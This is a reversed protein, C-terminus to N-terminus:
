KDPTFTGDSALTGTEGSKLRVRKGTAAANGPTRAKAEGAVPTLASTLHQQTGKRAQEALHRLTKPNATREIGIGTGGIIQHELAQGADSAQIGKVGRGMAQVDAALSAREKGDDSLPNLIRGHREIHDAFKNVADVYMNTKAIGDAIKDVVRASPAIGIPAGTDPDRVTRADLKDAAADARTAKTADIQERQLGLHARAISQTAKANDRAVQHAEERDHIKGDYEAAKAMAENRLLSGQIAAADAGNQLLQAEAEKAILRYKAALDADLDNMAARHNDLADKFGYRAQLLADGARSLRAQRQKAESDMLRNITKVGENEAHGVQGLQAASANQLGASIAGAIAMFISVGANRQMWNAGELDGAAAAKEKVAEDIAAQREARRAAFVQREEDRKAAAARETEAEKEARAAAATAATKSIREQHGLLATRHDTLARHFLLNQEVNRQPDGTLPPPAPPEPIGPVAIETAPAPTSGVPVPTHAGGPEFGGQQPIEPAPEILARASQGVGDLVSAVADGDVGFGEMGEESQPLLDDDGFM